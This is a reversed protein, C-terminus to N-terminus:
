GGASRRVQALADPGAITQVKGERVENRRRKAEAVWLNDIHTMECGTLSEVLRDAFRARADSPLGLAENEIQEATM